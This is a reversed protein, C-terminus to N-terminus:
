DAQERPPAPEAGRRGYLQHHCYLLLPVFSLYLRSVDPRGFTLNALLMTGLLVLVKAVEGRIRHRALFTAVLCLAVFSLVTAATPDFPARALRGLNELWRVPHGFLDTHRESVPPELYAVTFLAERAWAVYGAGGAALVTAALLNWRKTVKLRRRSWALGDIVLWVVIFFASERNLVGVSFLVAFFVLGRRSAIGYALLSFVALDVYDWGHNRPWLLLVTLATAALVYYLSTRHCGTWRRFAAYVAGNAVMMAAVYFGKLATEVPLGLQALYYIGYPALIRSAFRQKIAEGHEVQRLIVDVWLDLEHEHVLTVIRAAGLSAILVVLLAVVATGDRGRPTSPSRDDSAQPESM